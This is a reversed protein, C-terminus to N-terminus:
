QVIKFSHEKKGQKSLPTQYKNGNLHVADAFGLQELSGYRVISIQQATVDRYPGRLFCREETATCNNSLLLMVYEVTAHMAMPVYQDSFVM